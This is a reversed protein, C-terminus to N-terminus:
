DADGPYRLSGRDHGAGDVPQEAVGDDAALLDGAIVLGEIALKARVDEAVLVTLFRRQGVLEGALASGAQRGAALPAAEEQRLDLAGLEAIAGPVRTRVGLRLGTKVDDSVPSPM